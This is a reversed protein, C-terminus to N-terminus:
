RSRRPSSEGGSHAARGEPDDLSREILLMRSITPLISVLFTVHGPVLCIPAIILAVCTPLTMSYGSTFICFLATETVRALHVFVLCSMM